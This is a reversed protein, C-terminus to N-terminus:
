AERRTAQPGRRSATVELEGHRMEAGGGDADPVGAPRPAPPPLPGGLRATFPGESVPVPRGLPLRPRRRWPCCGPAQGWRSASSGRSQSPRHTDPGPGPGSFAAGGDAARAGTGVQLASEGWHPRDPGSCAPEQPERLGVEGGPPHGAQFLSKWHLLPKSVLIQTRPHGVAASYRRAGGLPKLLVPHPTPSTPPSPHPVRPGTLPGLRAGCSGPPM